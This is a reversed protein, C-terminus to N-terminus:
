AEPCRLTILDLTPTNLLRFGLFPVRHSAGLGASIYQPMGCVENLGSAQNDKPFWPSISSSKSVPIFIAGLFPLRFQGAHYHGSISLDYDLYGRSDWTEQPLGVEIPFHCVRIKVQGNGNLTDYWAQLQAGYEMALLREEQTKFRKDKVDLYNDQINQLSLEPVFWIGAGNRTVQTPSLLIKAGAAEIRRGIPTLQGTYSRGGARTVVTGVSFPDNNGDVWFVTDKNKMGNLITLVPELASEDRYESISMDGTFLACDYDLGNIVALLDSQDKGFVAEHLDSLQLIRYGDFEKPLNQVTVDQEVLIFRSNDYRIWLMGGAVVLALACLSAGIRFKKSKM